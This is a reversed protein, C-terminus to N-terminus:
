KGVTELYAWVIGRNGSDSLLFIIKGQGIMVIGPLLGEIAVSMKLM